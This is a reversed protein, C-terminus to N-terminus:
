KIVMLIGVVQNIESELLKTVLVNGYIETECYIEMNGWRNGWSISPSDRIWSKRTTKKLGEPPM